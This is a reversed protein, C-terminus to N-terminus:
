KPGIPMPLKRKGNGVGASPHKRYWRISAGTQTQVVGGLTALEELPARRANASVTGGNGSCLVLLRTSVLMRFRSSNKYNIRVAPETDTVNARDGSADGVRTFRERCRRSGARYAAAAPRASTGGRSSCRRTVRSITWIM